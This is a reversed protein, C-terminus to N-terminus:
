SGECDENSFTISPTRPPRIEIITMVLRAYRKMTSSTTGGEAFGRAITNFHGFTVEWHSESRPTKKENGSKPKVM